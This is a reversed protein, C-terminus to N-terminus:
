GPRGAEEPGVPTASGVAIREAMAALAAGVAQAEALSLPAWAHMDELKVEVDEPADSFSALVARARTGGLALPASRHWVIGDGAVDGACDDCWWPCSRRPVPAVVVDGADEALAVARQLAVAAQRADVPRWVLQFQADSPDRRVGQVPPHGGDAQEALGTLLVALSRAEWPRLSAAVAGDLARSRVALRVDAAGLERDAYEELGVELEGRALDRLMTRAGVHFGGTAVAECAEEACWDPHTIKGPATM